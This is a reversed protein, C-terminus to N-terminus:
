KRVAAGARWVLAVTQTNEDLRVVARRTGKDYHELVGGQVTDPENWDVCNVLIHQKQGGAPELVRLWMRREVTNFM